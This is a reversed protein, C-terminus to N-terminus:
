LAPCFKDPDLKKLEAWLRPYRPPFHYYRLMELRASQTSWGQFCIRYIAILYGTRDAGMQCHVLYPPALSVPDQDPGVWDQILWNYDKRVFSNGSIIKMLLSLTEPGPPRNARMQVGILNLGLKKALEKIEANEGGKLCVITKIGYKKVLKELDGARLEGSRYIKAEVVEGFNLFWSRHALRLGLDIASLAIVGAIIIALSKKAALKM